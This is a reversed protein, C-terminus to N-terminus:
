SHRQSDERVPCGERLDDHPSFERDCAAVEECACENAGANSREREVAQAAGM